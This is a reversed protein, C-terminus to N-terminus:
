IWSLDHGEKDGYNELITWGNGSAQWQVVANGNNATWTAKHSIPKLIWVEPANKYANLLAIQNPTAEDYICLNKKIEHAEM